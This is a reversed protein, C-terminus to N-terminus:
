QYVGVRASGKLTITKSGTSVKTFSIISSNAIVFDNQDPGSRNSGLRWKQVDLRFFYSIFIGSTFIRLQDASGATNGQTFDLENFITGITNNDTVFIKRTNTSNVFPNVVVWAQSLNGNQRKQSINKVLPVAVRIPM